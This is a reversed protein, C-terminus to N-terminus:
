STRRQAWPPTAPWGSVPGPLPPDSAPSAPPLTQTPLTRQLRDVREVERSPVTLCTGAPDLFVIWPEKQIFEVAEVDESPRQDQDDQRYVIRFMSM